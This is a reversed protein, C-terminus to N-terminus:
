PPLEGDTPEVLDIALDSLPPALAIQNRHLYGSNEIFPYQHGNNLSGLLIQQGICLM